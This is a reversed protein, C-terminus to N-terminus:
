CSFIDGTGAAISFLNCNRTDYNHIENNRLHSDTMMPRLLGNEYKIM